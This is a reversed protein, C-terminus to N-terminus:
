CDRQSAQCRRVQAVAFRDALLGHRLSSRFVPTAHDGLNRRFRQELQILVGSASDSVATRKNSSKATQQLTM